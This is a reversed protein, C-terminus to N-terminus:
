RIGEYVSAVGGTLRRVTVETFGATELSRCLESGQAFGSVSAPLYAYAEADGSLIRGVRPPVNRMWWGLLPALRGNPHSFELVMLTGGPRLVRAMEALGAHLDAFNRIGFAVTVADVCGDAFPLRLADAACLSVTRGSTAIKSKAIALMPLCFDTGVVGDGGVALALDGTGTCIDLVREPREAALRRAVLNRWKVDRGLSLVRNLLDYRHAIRGFM